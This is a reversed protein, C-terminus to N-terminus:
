RAQQKIFDFQKKIIFRHILERDKEDMRESFRFRYVEKGLPGPPSQAVMFAKGRIIFPEELPLIFLLSVPEGVRFTVPESFECSFGSASLDQFVANIVSGDAITVAVELHERYKLNLRYFDRRDPSKVPENPTLSKPFIKRIWHDLQKGTKEPPKLHRRKIFM